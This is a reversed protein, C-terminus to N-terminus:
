IISQVYMTLYKILTEMLKIKLQELSTTSVSRDYVPPKESTLSQSSSTAFKVVGNEILVEHTIAGSGSASYTYTSTEDNIINITSIDVTAAGEVTQGTILPAAQVVRIQFQGFTIAAVM